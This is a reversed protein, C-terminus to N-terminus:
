LRKDQLLNLVALGLNICRVGQNEIGKHKKDEFEQGQQEDATWDITIRYDHVDQDSIFVFPPKQGWFLVCSM